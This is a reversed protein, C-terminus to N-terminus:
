KSAWKNNNTIAELNEQEIAGHVSGTFGISGVRDGYDNYDDVIVNVTTFPPIILEQTNSSPRRDPTAGATAALLSINIDNFSIIAISQVTAVSPDTTNVGANIQFIGKIYESNTTFTLESRATASMAYWNYAYCFKNDPTFQLTGVGEFVGTM